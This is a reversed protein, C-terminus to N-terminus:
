ARNLASANSTNCNRKLNQEYKVVGEPKVQFGEYYLSRGHFGEIISM